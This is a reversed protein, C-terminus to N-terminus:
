KVFASQFTTRISNSATINFLIFAWITWGTSSKFFKSDWGYKTQRGTQRSYTGSTTPPYHWNKRVIRFISVSVCIHWESNAWQVVTLEKMRWQKGKEKVPLRFPSFDSFCTPSNYSKYKNCWGLPWICTHKIADDTLIIVLHM